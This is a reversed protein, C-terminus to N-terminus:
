CGDEAWGFLVWLPEQSVYADVWRADTGSQGPEVIQHEILLWRDVTEHESAGELELVVEALRWGHDAGLDERLVHMTGRRVVRLGESTREALSLRVGSVRAEAPGYDLSNGILTERVLLRVSENELSLRGGYDGHVRFGGNKSTARFAVGDVDADYPDMWEADAAAAGAMVSVANAALVVSQFLAGAARASVWTLAMSTGAWALTAGVLIAAVALGDGRRRKM